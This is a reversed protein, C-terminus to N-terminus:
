RAPRMGQAAKVAWLSQNHNGSSTPNARYLLCAAKISQCLQVAVQRLVIDQIAQPFPATYMLGCPRTQGQHLMSVQLLCLTHEQVAHLNVGFCRRGVTLWEKRFGSGATQSLM